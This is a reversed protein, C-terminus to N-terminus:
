VAKWGLARVAFNDLGLRLRKDPKLGFATVAGAMAMGAGFQRRSIKM